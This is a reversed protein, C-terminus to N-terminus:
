GSPYMVNHVNSTHRVNPANVHQSTIAMTLGAGRHDDDNLQETTDSETVGHVAACWAERDKLMEQLKECGNLRHHWGVMEGETTGKEEQRSDKGADILRSKEDPPCLIPAEAILGEFSCEPNIEKLISQNLLVETM